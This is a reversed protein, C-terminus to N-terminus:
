YVKSVSPGGLKTTNMQELRHKLNKHFIIIGFDPVTKM